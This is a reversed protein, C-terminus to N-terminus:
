IGPTFVAWHEWSILSQLQANLPQFGAPKTFAAWRRCGEMAQNSSGVLPLAPSPFRLM